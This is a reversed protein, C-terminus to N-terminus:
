CAVFVTSKPSYFQYCKTYGRIFLLTTSYFHTTTKVTLTQTLIYIKHISPRRGDATPRIEKETENETENENENQKQSRRGGGGGGAEKKVVSTNQQKVEDSFLGFWVLDHWLMDSCVVTLSPIFIFVFVFGFVVVVYRKM